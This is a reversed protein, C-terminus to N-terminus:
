CDGDKLQYSCLIDRSHALKMYNVANEMEFYETTLQSLIRYSEVADDKVSLAYSVNIRIVDVGMPTAHTVFM